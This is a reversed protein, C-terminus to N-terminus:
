GRAASCPARRAPAVLDDGALAEARGLELQAAQADRHEEEAEGVDAEGDHQRRRRDEHDAPQLGVPQREGGLVHGPLVVAVDQELPLEGAVGDPVADAQAEGGRDDRHEGAHDDGVHDDLHLDAALAQELEEAHQRERHRARHDRQAHDEGPAALEADVEVVGDPDDQDGVDGAVHRERELGVRRRQLLHVVRQDLRRASRARRHPLRQAVDHQRQHPGPHQRREEEDEQRRQALEGHRHQEVPRRRSGDAHRDVRQVLVALRDVRRREGADREDDDDSPSLTILRRNLPAAPRLPQPPDHGIDFEVLHGLAEARHGRDVAEVEVDCLALAHRHQPGRAAALRGRQPHDGAELVEVLALDAGAVLQQRRPPLVVVQRRLLAVEAHHELGERDPRVERHELVDRKRQADALQRPGLDLGAGLLRQPM